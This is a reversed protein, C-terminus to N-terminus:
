NSTLKKIYPKLNYINDFLMFVTKKNGTYETFAFEENPLFRKNFIKISSLVGNEYLCLICVADLEKDLTNTVSIAAIGNNVTLTNSKLENLIYYVKVDAVTLTNNNNGPAFGISAPIDATSDRFKLNAAKIEDDVYLDFSKTKTDIVVKLKYPKYVDVTGNLVTTKSTTTAGNYVYMSGKQSYIHIAAKNNADTAVMLTKYDSTLADPIVTAELTLMSGAPATFAHSAISNVQDNIRYIRLVNDSEGISVINCSNPSDHFIWGNQNSLGGATYDDFDDNILYKKKNFISSVFESFESQGGESYAAAKYYYNTDILFSNDTYNNVNTDIIETYDSNENESRYVKYGKAGFVSDWNLVGDTYTFDKPPLPKSWALKSDATENKYLRVKFTKGHSGAAPVSIYIKGDSKQVTVGSDMSEIGFFNKNIELNISGTNEQTPDSVSIETINGNESMMVVAKNYCIIDSIELKRNQWFVAGLINKNKELVAHIDESDALVEIDPNNSYNETEIASKDPLIVYEYTKNQPMIGHDIAMSLYNRTILSSSETTNVSKWSDTRSERKANINIPNPFYYGIDSKQKNELNTPNGELHAWSANAINENYGTYQPKSIGNVIFKNDATDKIKRNEVITEISDNQTESNIDSGLCVIEDDLMFWSKKAKLTHMTGSTDDAAMFEMASVGYLNSNEVGGAFSKSFDDAKATTNKITTIGPLRYKDITAFYGDDFQKLDSNYLYTMGSGTHWGKLNEGNISEYNRIRSSYMAANFSYDPRKIVFRDMNYFQKYFDPDAAQAVSNDTMIKDFKLITFINKINDYYNYYTNNSAWRKILSKYYSAYPEPAFFAIKTLTEVFDYRSGSRSIYRGATSDMSRGEFSTTIFSDDIWNYINQANPDALRYSTGELLYMINSLNGLASLGYGSNYPVTHHQIFSGDEYFGDDVTVYKLTPSIQDRAYIIKSSDKKVIGGVALLACQSLRNAGTAATGLTLIQKDISKQYNLIQDATLNNYIMAQINNLHAPISIEWYYWNDSVAAPDRNNKPTNENLKYTYLWDLADIIDGCLDSNGSLASGKQVYALTMATLRAYTSNMKSSNRSYMDMTNGTQLDAWLYSNDFSNVRNEAKIMSDWLSQAYTTNEVVQPAIYKQYVESETDYDGGTLVEVWKERLLTFEDTSASFGAAPFLLFIILLVALRKV